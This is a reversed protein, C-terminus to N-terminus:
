NDDIDDENTDNDDADAFIESLLGVSITIM